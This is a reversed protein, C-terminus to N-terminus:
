RAAPCAALFGQLYWRPLELDVHGKTGFLRLKLPGDRPEELVPRPLRVRVHEAVHADASVDRDVVQLEFRRGEIDYASELFRWSDGSWACVLEFREPAEGAQTRELSWTLEPGQRRSPGRQTEVRRYPDWVREVCSRVQDADRPEARAYGGLARPTACACGLALLGALSTTWRM